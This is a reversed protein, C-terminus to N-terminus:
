LFLGSIVFYVFEMSHRYITGVAKDRNLNEFFRAVAGRLERTSVELALFHVLLVMCVHLWSYM